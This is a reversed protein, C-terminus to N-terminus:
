PNKGKSYVSSVILGKYLSHEFVPNMGMAAFLAPFDPLERATIRSIIKFFLLMTHILIKKWWYDISAKKEPLRFDAILWLGQVNLAHSLLVSIKELRTPAFIDLFFHTVIVDFREDPLITDETGLRLEVTTDPLQPLIDKIKQRTLDLMKQSPEIYVVKKVKKQLLLEKLYWGTGGGIILVTTGTSIWLLTHLQAQKISAGFVWAALNDYVAAVPEFNHLARKSM